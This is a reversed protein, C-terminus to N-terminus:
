PLNKMDDILLCTQGGLVRDLGAELLTLEDTKGVVCYQNRPITHLEADFVGGSWNAIRLPRHQAYHQHEMVHSLLAAERAFHAVARGVIFQSTQDISRLKLRAQTTKQLLRMFVPADVGQQIDIQVLELQHVVDTPM